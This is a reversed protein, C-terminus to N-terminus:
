NQPTEPKQGKVKPKKALSSVIGAFCVIAIGAIKLSGLSEKWLIWGIATAFIVTFYQFPAVLASPAESYGRTMFMQGCLAFFGTSMLASLQKLNAVSSGSLLFPFLSVLTSFFAFYFVTRLVPESISMNRVTVMAMAAMFGASIAILSVANFGSVTPNLIIFVGFFGIIIAAASAFHIREKLWILSIIPLYLPSSYSFLVAEALQLKHISYFYCYMATLGFLSRLLHLKFSKTKLPVRKYLLVPVVMLLATANRFFVITETCAFNSSYKAMSGVAAFCLASLTIYLAGHFFHNKRETIM